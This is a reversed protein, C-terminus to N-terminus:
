DVRNRREGRLFAVINTAIESLCRNRAEQAGWAMHPTLCVNDLHRIAYFPHTEPFPEVSYVDVGIGGLRGEAVAKALAVEDTVAGRAVNIFVANSKMLAIEREGIIGRTEPTLPLHVSLIDAERCLTHLDVNEVGTKPSKAFAMVRCGLAAAVAGVRAGIHGYGIIGWTKGAIEHYIPTLRNAVGGRTYSGDAVAGSFAPLHTCLSLAMAVTVQAVSDTSYGRVNAVAIGRKRCADLDINDFGTACEAIMALRTNGALVSEGVRVKNIVAIDTNALREAVRDPPTNAYVTLEGLAQLPALDLDAGLTEADLVSIKMAKEM